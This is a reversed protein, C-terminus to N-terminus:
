GRSKKKRARMPAPAHAPTQQQIEPDRTEVHPERTQITEADNVRVARGTAILGVAIPDPLDLVAGPTIDPWDKIITARLLRVRM